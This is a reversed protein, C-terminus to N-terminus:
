RTDPPCDEWSPEVLADEIPPNLDPEELLARVFDERNLYDPSQPDTSWDGFDSPVVDRYVRSWPYDAGSSIATAQIGDPSVVVDFNSGFTGFGDYTAEAVTRMISARQEDTLADFESETM